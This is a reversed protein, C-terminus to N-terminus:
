GDLREDDSLGVMKTFSLPRNQFGEGASRVSLKPSVIADKLVSKPHRSLADLQLLAYLLYGVGDISEYCPKAPHGRFLGNDWLKDVAERGMRFASDLFKDEATAAYLTLFFSITRGYKGAHAGQKGPGDSYAKYWSQPNGEDTGPPTKDIWAAFRRAAEGMTEDGTLLYALAYAQATYIAFQYGAM